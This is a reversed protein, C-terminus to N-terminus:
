RKKQVRRGTDADNKFFHRFRIVERTSGNKNHLPRDTAANKNPNITGAQRAISPVRCPNSPDSM